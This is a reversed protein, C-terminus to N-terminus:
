NIFVVYAKSIERAFPDPAFGSPALGRYTRIIKLEKHNIPSKKYELGYGELGCGMSMVFMWGSGDFKKDGMGVHWLRM